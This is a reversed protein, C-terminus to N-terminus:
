EIVASHLPFAFSFYFAAVLRQLLLRLWISGPFDALLVRCFSTGFFSVPNQKLFLFDM